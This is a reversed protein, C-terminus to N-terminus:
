GAPAAAPAATPTVERGPIAQLLGEVIVRDTPALGDNVVLAAGIQQGTKIGRREVVNKDNVVLVYKRDQDTGIARDTV